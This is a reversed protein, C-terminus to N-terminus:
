FAQVIEPFGDHVAGDLPYSGLHHRDADDQGAEDGDHEAVAGAGVHHLPYGRRHNATNDGGGDEFEDDVGGDVHDPASPFEPCFSARWSSAGREDDQGGFPSDDEPSPM